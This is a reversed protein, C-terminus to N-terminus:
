GYLIEDLRAGQTPVGLLRAIEEANRWEIAVTLLHDFVEDGEGLLYVALISEQSLENNTGTAVAYADADQLIGDLVISESAYADAFREQQTTEGKNTNLLGALVLLTLITITLLAILM